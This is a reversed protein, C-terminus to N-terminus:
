VYQQQVEVASTDKSRIRELDRADNIQRQERYRGASVEQYGRAHLKVANEHSEAVATEITPDSNEDKSHKIFYRM